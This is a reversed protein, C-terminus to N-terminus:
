FGMHTNNKFNNHFFTNDNGHQDEVGAVNNQIVNGIVTNDRSDFLLDVGPVDYSVISDKIQSSNSAELTIGSAGYNYSSSVNEIIINKSNRLCVGAEQNYSAVVNAITSYSTNIFQVGYDNHSLISGNVTINKSDVVAVYGAGSPVTMNSRNVWVYIGKGNVTNTPDIDNNTFNSIGFNYTNNTLTNNRLYNGTANIYLGFTSSGINNSLANCKITNGASDVYVGYETNLRIFNNIITANTATPYLSIGIKANQITLNYIQVNSATVNFVMGTGSGDVTARNPRRDYTLSDWKITVSKDVAEHEYYTGNRVWIIGGDSSNGLAARISADTGYPQGRPDVIRVSSPDSSIRIGQITIGLATVAMIFVSAMCLALKKNMKM